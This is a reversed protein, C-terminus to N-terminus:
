NTVRMYFTQISKNESTKIDRTISVEGIKQLNKLYHNKENKKNSTM